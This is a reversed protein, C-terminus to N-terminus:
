FSYTEQEVALAQPAIGFHSSGISQPIILCYDIHFEPSVNQYISFTAVISVEFIIYEANSATTLQSSNWSQTDMTIMKGLDTETIYEDYYWSDNALSGYFGQSANSSGSGILTTKRAAEYYYRGHSYGWGDVEAVYYHSATVEVSNITAGVQNISDTYISSYGKSLSAYNDWSGLADWLYEDDYYPAKNITESVYEAGGQPDNWGLFRQKNHIDISGKVSTFVTNTLTVTIVTKFDQLKTITFTQAASDISYQIFTDVSASEGSTKWAASITFKRYTTEVPTLSYSLTVYDYGSSNTGKTLEKIHLLSNEIAVNDECKDVANGCSGMLLAMILIPLLKIKSKM